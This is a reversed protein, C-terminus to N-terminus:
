LVGNNTFKVVQEPGGSYLGFPYDVSFVLWHADQAANGSQIPLMPGLSAMTPVHLHRPPMRSVLWCSTFPNMSNQSCSFWHPTFDPLFGSPQDCFTGPLWCSVSLALQGIDLRCLCLHWCGIFLKWMLMHPTSPPILPNPQPWCTTPILDNFWLM